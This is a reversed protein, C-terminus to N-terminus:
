SSDSAPRCLLSRSCYVRVGAGSNSLDFVVSDPTELDSIEWCCCAPDPNEVEHWPSKAQKSARTWWGKTLLTCDQIQLKKEGSRM